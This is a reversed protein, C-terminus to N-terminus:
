QTAGFGRNALLTFYFVTASTKIPISMSLSSTDSNQAGLKTITFIQNDPTMGHGLIKNAEYHQILQTWIKQYLINTSSTSTLTLGISGTTAMSERSGVCEMIAIDNGMVITGNLTVSVSENNLTASQVITFSDNYSEWTTISQSPSTFEGNDPVEHIQYVFQSLGIYSSTRLAAKSIIHNTHDILIGQTGTYNAFNDNIFLGDSSTTLGGNSKLKIYIGNSDAALGGSQIIKSSITNNNINIGDGANYTTGGSSSGNTLYLEGDTNCSIGGDTKLKVYIGGTNNNIGIGGTNVINLSLVNNNNILGSNNNITYGQWTHGSLWNTDIYLGDENATIGGNTTNIKVSIKRGNVAIGIGGSMYIQEGLWSSDIALGASSKILGGDTSTKISITQDQSILIGDGANYITKNSLGNLIDCLSKNDIYEEGGATQMTFGRDIDFDYRPYAVIGSDSAFLTVLDTKTYYDGLQSVYRWDYGIGTKYIKQYIKNTDQELVFRGLYVGTAASAAAPRQNEADYVADFRLIGDYPLLTNNDAM